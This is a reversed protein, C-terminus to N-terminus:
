RLYDFIAEVADSPIFVEQMEDDNGCSSEWGRDSEWVEIDITGDGMRGIRVRDTLETMRYAM